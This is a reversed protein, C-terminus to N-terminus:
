QGFNYTFSAGVVRPSGALGVSMGLLDAFFAEQFYEEDTLNFAYVALNWRDDNPLLTVRANVLTYDDTRTLPNNSAERFMDDTYKADAQLALRFSNSLTLEYRGGLTWQLEGANPLENGDLTAESSDTETDLIGLGARLDLGAVPRAIIEADLGYIDAGDINDLKFGFSAPVFTQIDEYDYYFAALNMQVKGEALTGKWGVEAAQLTESEFPALEGNDLTFDGFFGGSKFGTSISGYLLHDDNPRFELAVRYDIQDDSFTEDIFTFPITDGALLGPIGLANDNVAIGSTGGAFDTEEDTYRLGITLTLQENLMFDVSGNLAWAETKQDITWLLPDSEVLLAGFDATDVRNTNDFEDTTFFAGVLWNVRDSGGSLRFEQSFQEIEEDHVVAFLEAPSPWFNEGYVRDQQLYGTISTLTVTDLDVDFKLNVGDIQSDIKLDSVLNNPFSHTFQDTGPARAFGAVDGCTADDLPTACPVFSYPGSALDYIGGILTFPLNGLDQDLHSVTLNWSVVEGDNGLQGRVGWTSSDNFNATGGGDRLYDHFNEGQEDVLLSIRGALNEGLAGGVAAEVKVTDFEGASIQVFGDTDRTPKATHINLAGGSANRGYLTGQPGKLVEVREIDFMALGLMAASSLFVEDVYVGVSPNNNSNFNNQGVGRVTIAPNVNGQTGKIDVNPVLFAIKQPSDIGNDRLTEGQYAQVTAGVDTIAQERKQATVVIEELFGDAALGPAPGLLLGLTTMWIMSATRRQPKTRMSM